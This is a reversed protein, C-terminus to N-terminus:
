ANDKLLQHTLKAVLAVAQDHTIRLRQHVLDDTACYIDILGGCRHADIDVPLIDRVETATTWHPRPTRM